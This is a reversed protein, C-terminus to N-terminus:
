AHMLHSRLFKSGHWDKTKPTFGKPLPMGIVQIHCRQHYNPCMAVANSTCDSGKEALHNARHADLFPLDIRM